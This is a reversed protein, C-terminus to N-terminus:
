GLMRFERVASSAGHERRLRTDLRGQEVYRNLAAFTKSKGADSHALIARFAHWEGDALITAALREFTADQGDRREPMCGRLAVVFAGAITEIEFQRAAGANRKLYSALTRKTVGLRAAAGKVNMYGGSERLMAALAAARQEWREDITASQEATWASPEGPLPEEAIAAGSDVAAVKTRPTVPQCVTVVRRGGGPLPVTYVHRVELFKDYDPDLALVPM